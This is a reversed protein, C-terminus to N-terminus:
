KVCSNASNSWEYQYGFGGDTFPAPSWACQDDAEYGTHGNWWANVPDTVAERTEHCAFHQADQVTSFGSAHCGSCSPYPEISYKITHGGSSYSGHYACYALHPGGCSTSTGDSSYYGNPIFVEYITENDFGTSAIVKNVEAQVMADTVNTSSPNTNDFVAGSANSLLTSAGIHRTSGTTTDYYQTLMAYHPGNGFQEYFSIMASADASPNSSTGWFTQGWFIPRVKAANLIDGGHYTILNNNPRAFKTAQGKTPIEHVWHGNTEKMAGMGATAFALAAGFVLLKKM